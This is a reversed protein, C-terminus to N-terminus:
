RMHFGHHHENHFILFIKKSFVLLWFCFCCCFFHLKGAGGITLIKECLNWLSTKPHTADIKSFLMSKAWGIHNDPQGVYAWNVAFFVLFVNKATFQGQMPCGSLWIPQAFHIGKADISGVWRPVLKHFKPLFQGAEPPPQFVWKKSDAM